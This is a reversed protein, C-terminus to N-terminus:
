KTEVISIEEETLGYLAYVLQDIERDTSDLQNKIGLAKDAEQVFYSEWEAEDSLTLKVKKKGLESIFEAYTLQYWNQLKGPLEELAFKRMISRQFKGSVEQLEKNLSLMLDAKAIFPQQDSTSKFPLMDLHFAKVQAMAEGREPNITWYYWDTLKSNLLALVYKLNFKSEYKNLLIHTNDRMIFGKTIFHGVISDATQRFILKEAAEFIDKDRPAALWEGYQIWYNNDWLSKYRNFYSGGILPSFSDNVKIESTFPKETM